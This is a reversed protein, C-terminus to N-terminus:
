KLRLVNQTSGFSLPVLINSHVLLKGHLTTTRVQEIAGARFTDCAALVVKLNHGKLYYTIKALSTSKGVGNVGCLVIVFPRKENKRVDRIDQLLDTSQKPTLIRTLTEELVRKVTTTVTSMSEMRKGVLSASVSDCLKVAIAQAVNKAILNDRFQALVPALDEETLDKKGALGKFFGFVSSM